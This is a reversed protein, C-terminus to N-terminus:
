GELQLRLALHKGAAETRRRDGVIVTRGISRDDRAPKGRFEEENRRPAPVPRRRAPAGRGPDGHPAGEGWLIPITGTSYTPHRVSIRTKKWGLFSHPLHVPWFNVLSGSTHFLAVHPRVCSYIHTDTHASGMARCEMMGTMRTHKSTHTTLSPIPRGKCEVPPDSNWSPPSGEPSMRTLLGGV